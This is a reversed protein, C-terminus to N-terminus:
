KACSCFPQQLLYFRLDLPFFIFIFFPFFPFSFLRDEPSSHKLWNSGKILERDFKKAKLFM